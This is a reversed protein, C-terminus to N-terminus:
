GINRRRIQRVMLATVGMGVLAISSPEPVVLAMVSIIGQSNLLSTDWALGSDLTPLNTSGFVGSITGDFLNFTDGALLSAGTNTVVLTSGGYDLTGSAAILDANQGASRDIEMFNTATVGMLLNFPSITGIGGIGPSINGNLTVAGGQLNGTGSLSAGLAITTGNTIRTTGSNNLIVSSGAVTTISGGMTLTGSNNFQLTTGSANLAVGAGASINNTGL